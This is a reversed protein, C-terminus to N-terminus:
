KTYEKTTYGEAEVPVSEAWDPAKSMFEIIDKLSAEACEEDVEIVVEDHVHLVIDFGADHLEVLQHAFVDRACAQVTNQFINAGYFYSRRLGGKQTAATIGDSEARIRYYGIERGSPLIVTYEGGGVQEKYLRGHKSWQATIGPNKYRFDDVQLFANVWQRRDATPLEPYSTAKGPQYTGAFSKFRIEDDKTFDNDLLQQQGFSKVTESFKFWGSGYGLQLVRVKALMYLQPDEEKLKGGTWGMTQRAHAEYPSMGRGLLELTADDGAMLATLRAEIQALDVVVFTKGESASICSRIDVGYQPERPLNQVNLGGDGSWRATVDAGCYKMNYSIRLGDNFPRRLRGEMARLTKLHKNIRQVNQMDTAFTILDGYESDWESFEKSNKDLSEPPPIGLNRCEVALAKKSYVAYPKKTDPDIEEYWPLRQKADFLQEELSNIGERLNVESAPLGRYAMARTMRSLTQEMEPWRAILKDYLQFCYKADDLAYALADDLTGMSVLDEWTKDKMMSRVEKSMDVDLVEKASGKLTRPFQLYVCMDATCVWEVELDLPAVGQEQLREFVRQDFSANHAVLTYGRISEWDFDAPKGVYELGNGYISVMYASFEPHHMYQYTSMKAISVTSSYFTEFDIAAVPRAHGSALNKFKKNKNKSKMLCLSLTSPPLM